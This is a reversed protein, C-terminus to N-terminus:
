ASAKELKELWGTIAEKVKQYPALKADRESTIRAEEEARLSGGVRRKNSILVRGTTGGMARALRAQYQSRLLHIEQNLDRELLQLQQVAKEVEGKKPKSGEKSLHDLKLEDLSHQFQAATKM